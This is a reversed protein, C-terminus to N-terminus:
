HRCCSASLAQWVFEQPLTPFLNCGYRGRGRQVKCHFFEQGEKLLCVIWRGGGDFRVLGGLYFLYGSFLKLARVFRGLVAVAWVQNTFYM